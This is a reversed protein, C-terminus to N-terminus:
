YKLGAIVEALTKASKRLQQVENETLVQKVVHTVGNSGLICPLSLFIDEEIGHIDQFDSM